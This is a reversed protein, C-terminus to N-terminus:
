ECQPLREVSFVKLTGKVDGRGALCLLFLAPPIKGPQHHHVALSQERVWFKHFTPDAVQVQLRSVPDYQPLTEVAEAPPVHIHNKKKKFHSGSIHGHLPNLLTHTHKRAKKLIEFM